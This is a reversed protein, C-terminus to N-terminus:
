SELVGLNLGTPSWRSVAQGAWSWSFETAAKATTSNSNVTFGFFASFMPFFWQLDQRHLNIEGNKFHQLNLSPLQTVQLCCIVPWHNTTQLDCLQWALVHLVEVHPVESVHSFVLKWSLDILCGLKYIYIPIRTGSCMFNFVSWTEYM